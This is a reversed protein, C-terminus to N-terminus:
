SMIIDVLFLSFVVSDTLHDPLPLHFSRSFSFWELERRHWEHESVNPSRCHKKEKDEHHGGEEDVLDPLCGHHDCQDADAPCHSTPHPHAQCMRQPIDHQVRKSKCGM